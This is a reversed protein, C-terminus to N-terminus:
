DEPTEGFRALVQPDGWIEAERDVTQAVAIAGRHTAALREARQVAAAETKSELPPQPALKGGRGTKFAQAFFQRTATM